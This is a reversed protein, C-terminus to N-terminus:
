DEEEVVEVEVEEVEERATEGLVVEVAEEFEAPGEQSVPEPDKM